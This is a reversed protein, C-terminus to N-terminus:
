ENQEKLMEEIGRVDEWQETEEELKDEETKDPGKGMDKQFAKLM